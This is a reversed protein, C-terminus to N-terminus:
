SGSHGSSPILYITGSTPPVVEVQLLEIELSVLPSCHSSDWLGSLSMKWASASVRKAEDLSLPVKHHNSYM